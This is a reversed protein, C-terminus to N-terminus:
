KILYGLILTIIGIFWCYFAFMWFNDKKILINLINLFILSLMFTLIFSVLLSFSFYFEGLELLFAGLSLPIFMLFSFKAAKEKKVGSILGASITMGSRSVGPLLAPIQMLGIFLASKWNLHNNGSFFKTSFLVFGTFLFAGGLFFLSSFASEIIDNFFLGVLGAPIVGILILGIMKWSTKDFKLLDILENRTFVLIALLSALHLITFFFLNPQSFLNSILALHGSSSIPLFETAAQIFSLFIENFM